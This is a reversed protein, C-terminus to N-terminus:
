AAGQTLSGSSQLPPAPLEGNVHRRWWAASSVYITPIHHRAVSNLPTSVPLPHRLHRAHYGQNLSTLCESVARLAPLTRCPEAPDPLTQCMAKNCTTQTRNTKLTLTIQTEFAADSGASPCAVRSFIRPAYRSFLFLLCPDSLRSPDSGPRQPAAPGRKCDAASEAAGAPGSWFTRELAHFSPERPPSDRPAM